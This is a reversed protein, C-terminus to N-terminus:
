VSPGAADHVDAAESRFGTRDIRGITQVTRAKDGAGRQKAAREDVCMQAGSM